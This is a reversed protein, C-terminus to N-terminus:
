DREMQYEIYSRCNACYDEAANSTPEGCRDCEHLRLVERCDVNTCVGIDPEVMAVSDEGCERCELLDVDPNDKPHYEGVDALEELEEDSLDFYAMARGRWEEMEQKRDLQEGGESRDRIYCVTDFYFYTMWTEFRRQYRRDMKAIVAPVDRFELSGTGPDHRFACLSDVLGQLLVLHENNSYRRAQVPVKVGSLSILRSVEDVISTGEVNLPDVIVRELAAFPLFSNQCSLESFHYGGAIPSGYDDGILMDDIATDDLAHDRWNGPNSVISRKTIVIDDMEDFITPSMILTIPGYINPAGQSRARAFIEGFDYLNGFVRDMVGRQEDGQDSWFPTTSTDYLKLQTRSLVAARSCYISFARLNIAHYFRCNAAKLKDSSSGTTVEVGGRSQPAVVVQISRLVNGHDDRFLSM